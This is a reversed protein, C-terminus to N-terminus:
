ALLRQYLRDLESWTRTIDFNREVRRRGEAGMRHRRDADTLLAELADSLAGVDAPPVLLGTVGDDVARPIDGVATAVVPLGSAMAELVSLPMAEWWSPLCFVDSSRYLDPMVERPQSGLFQVSPGAAARVEAEAEPGEEPTGGALVLDHEVGRGTLLTSARLLDVVGKRPTLRGAFLVRPPQRAPGPPGFLSVDVGNDVLIVGDEGLATALAARSTESVTVVAHAPRLAIRTLWRRTGTAIWSDVKGSHVHVVVRAGRVRAAAALWGARLLTVFPVLATHVHVLNVQRSARLVRLGDALTRLANARTLRGGRPVEERSLNLHRLEYRSTLPSRLMAELFGPIGGTEPAGKGVVLVRKPGGRRWGTPAPAGRWETRQTRRWAVTQRGTVHRWAGRLTAVNTFAFQYAPALAADDRVAAVAAAGYGLSQGLLLLRALRSQRALAASALWLVPLVLPVVLSRLVRHSLFAVAVWGRRPDALRLHGLTTQWTGAAIRTRREFEEALTPSVAETTAAEPAYRVAYGRVLADCVLHYDDNVVGPPIPRFTDRRVGSLEGPSGMVCDLASECHKLYSELRWYLGEGAGRAGAGEVRKAGSVVAVRRDALHSALARLSGPALACNADSLCVVEGSAAGVGRNVAASKGRREPEWLVVAGRSRAVEATRDVSGDAVVMVELKGAPYDQSLTDDVKHGIVEEEDLAPILVTMTPLADDDLVPAPQQRRRRAALGAIVPYGAYTYVVVSLGAALLGPGRRV